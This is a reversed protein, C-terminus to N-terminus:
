EKGKKKFNRDLDVFSDSSAAYTKDLFEFSSFLEVKNGFVRHSNFNMKM